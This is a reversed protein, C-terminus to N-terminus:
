VLGSFYLVLMAVFLLGAWLAIRMLDLRAAAYDKTYDIPEPAPRSIVRRTSRAARVAASSPRAVAPAPPLTPAEVPEDLHVTTGTSPEHRIAEASTAQRPQQRANQRRRQSRTHPPM